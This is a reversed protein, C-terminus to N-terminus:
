IEEPRTQSLASLITCSDATHNGGCCREDIVKLADYMHQLQSLKQEIEALKAHTINKVEQCTHQEPKIRISLLEQIDSISLGVEKAHLIFKIKDISEQNYQRYGNAAREPQILQQQEYFRIAETTIGLKKALQGRTLAKM